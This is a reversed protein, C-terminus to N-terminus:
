RCLPLPLSTIGAGVFSTFNIISVYALIKYYKMKSFIDFVVLDISLITLVYVAIILIDGLQGYEFAAEHNSKLFLTMLFLETNFVAFFIREPMHINVKRVAPAATRHSAPQTQEPNCCDIFGGPFGAIAGGVSIGSNSLFELLLGL